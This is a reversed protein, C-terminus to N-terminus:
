WHLQRQAPRKLSELIDAEVPRTVMSANCESACRHPFLFLKREKASLRKQKLAPATTPWTNTEYLSDVAHPTPQTPICNPGLITKRPPQKVNYWIGYSNLTAQGRAPWVYATSAYQVVFDRTSNKVASVCLCLSDTPRATWQAGPDTMRVRSPLNKFRIKRARVLAAVSVQLATTATQSRWTDNVRM